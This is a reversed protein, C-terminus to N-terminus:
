QHVAETLGLSSNETHLDHKRPVKINKLNVSFIDRWETNM